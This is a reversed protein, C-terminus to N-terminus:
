SFAMTHRQISTVGCGAKMWIGLRRYRSLEITVVSRYNEGCRRETASLRNRRRAKRFPLEEISSTPHRVDGRQRQDRTTSAALLSTGSQLPAQYYAYRSVTPRCVRNRRLCRQKRNQCKAATVVTCADPLSGTCTCTMDFGGNRM